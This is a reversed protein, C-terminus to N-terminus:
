SANLKAHAAVAIHSSDVYINICLTLVNKILSVDSTSQSFFFFKLLKSWVM